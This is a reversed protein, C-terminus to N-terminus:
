QPGVDQIQIGFNAELAAGAADLTRVRLTTPSLQEVSNLGPTAGYTQVKAIGGNDGLLTLGDQMTLTYDGAGNRAVGSFGRSNTLLPGVQATVNACAFLGRITGVLTASM